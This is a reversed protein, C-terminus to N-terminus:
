LQLPHSLGLFPPLVLRCSLDFLIFQSPIPHSLIPNSRTMPSLDKRQTAPHPDHPRHRTVSPLVDQIGPHKIVAVPVGVEVRLEVGVGVEVRVEVEVEVEVRVEM